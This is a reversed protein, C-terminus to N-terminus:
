TTKTPIGPLVDEARDKLATILYTSKDQNSWRNHEAVIVFQRRFVSLTTNGDFMPPQASCTGVGPTNTGEARTQRTEDLRTQFERKTEEIRKCTENYNNTIEEQLSVEAAQLKQQKKKIKETLESQLNRKDHEIIEFINEIRHQITDYLEPRMSQMAAKMEKNDAKRDAAAKEQYADLKVLM